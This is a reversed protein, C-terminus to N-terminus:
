CRLMLGACMLMKVGGDLVARVTFVLPMGVARVMTSAHADDHIVVPSPHVVEEVLTHGAMATPRGVIGHRLVILDREGLHCRLQHALVATFLDTPVTPKTPAPTILPNAALLGLRALADFLEAPETEPILNLLASALSAADNPIPAGLKASIVERPLGLWHELQVQCEADLLGIARSSQM